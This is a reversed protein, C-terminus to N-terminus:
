GPAETLVLQWAFCPIVRAARKENTIPWIDHMRFNKGDAVFDGAPLREVGIRLPEAPPEFFQANPHKIVGGDAVFQLRADATKRWAMSRASMTM